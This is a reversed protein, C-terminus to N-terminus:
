RALWAKYANYDKFGNRPITHANPNIAPRPRYDFLPRTNPSNSPRPRYDYSSKADTRYNLPYYGSIEAAKYRGPLVRPPFSRYDSPSGPYRNAMAQSATAQATITPMVTANEPSPLVWGGLVLVSITLTVNM